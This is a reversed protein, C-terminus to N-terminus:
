SRYSLYCESNKKEVGPLCAISSARLYFDVVM